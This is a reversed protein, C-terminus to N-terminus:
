HTQRFSGPPRVLEVLQHRYSSLSFNPTTHATGISGPSEMCGHILSSFNEDKISGIATATVQNKGEDLPHIEHKNM